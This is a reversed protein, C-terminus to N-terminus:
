GKDISKAGILKDIYEFLDSSKFPKLLYENAGSKLVEERSYADAHGTIALINTNALGSEDKNLRRCVELGDIKPLRIDLILLDPMFKGVRILVEYGDNVVEVEFDPYEEHLMEKLGIAFEYDDEGILIKSRKKSKFFEENIPIKNKKLFERFNEKSIKYRGRPYRYCKLRGSKIWRTVHVVSVGCYRAIDSTTFTDELFSENQEKKEKL